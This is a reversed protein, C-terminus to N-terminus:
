YAGHGRLVVRVTRLLIALDLRLSWDRIYEADLEVRRSYQTDNRGSVQWLGTLGPRVQAYLSSTGGYRYMEEAVVPRPGVMSMEGCLVNWLQPLEDLSTKRLLRGIRTVRPDNRLKHTQAWEAACAQNRRLHDELCADANEVMSRFKWLRFPRGGKGLRTHGFLVPGRSDLKIAIAILLGPVLALLGLLPTFFLDFVRKIRQAGPEVLRATSAGTRPHVLRVPPPVAAPVAM